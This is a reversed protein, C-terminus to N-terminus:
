ARDGRAPSELWHVSFHRLEDTWVPGADFGASSALRRFGEITFKHSNETHLSEGEEFAFDKEGIRVTQACGSVLHMEM